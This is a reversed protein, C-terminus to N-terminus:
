QMSKRGKLAEPTKPKFMQTACPHKRDLAEASNDLYKWFSYRNDVHAVEIKLREIKSKGDEEQLKHEVRYTRPNSGFRGITCQKM